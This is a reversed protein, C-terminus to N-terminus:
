AALLARIAAIGRELEPDGPELGRRACMERWDDVYCEALMEETAHAGQRSVTALHAGLSTVESRAEHNALRWAQDAVTSHHARIAHLASALIAVQVITHSDWAPLPAGCLHCLTSSM